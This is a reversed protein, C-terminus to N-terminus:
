QSEGTSIEKEIQKRAIYLEHGVSGEPKCSQEIKVV